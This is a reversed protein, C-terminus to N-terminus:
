ELAPACGFRRDSPRLSNSLGQTNGEKGIDSPYRVTYIQQTSKRIYPDDIDAPWYFRITKSTITIDDPVLHRNDEYYFWIKKLLGERMIIVNRTFSGPSLSVPESEAFYIGETDIGVVEKLIQFIPDNGNYHGQDPCYANGTETDIWPTMYFGVNPNEVQELGEISPMNPWNLLSFIKISRVIGAQNKLRTEIQQNIDPNDDGDLDAFRLDSQDWLAFHQPILEFRPYLPSDEEGHAEVDHCITTKVDAPLAQPKANSPFYFHIRSKNEYSLVGESETATRTICSYQSVPMIKILGQVSAEQAEKRYIQFSSSKANSGSQSEVITAVYTTEYSLSEINVTFSNSNPPINISLEQVSSGDDIQLFCGPATLDSGTIEANCWRELSGLDDNLLVEPGLTVSGYLTSNTNTKSNCFSACNNAVDPKGAKCACIDSKVFVAGSPRLVGSGQVCVGGEATEIHGLIEQHQEPTINGAELENNLEDLAQQREEQNALHTGIPCNPRCTFSSLDYIQTCSDTFDDQSSGFKEVLPRDERGRDSVCSNIGLILTTILFTKARM